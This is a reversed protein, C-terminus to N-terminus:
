CFLSSRSSLAMYGCQKALCHNRTLNVSTIKGQPLTSNWRVKRSSTVQPHKRPLQHGTSVARMQRNRSGVVKTPLYSTPVKSPTRSTDSISVKHKSRLLPSRAPPSRQSLAAAPRPSRPPSPPCCFRVGGGTVGVTGARRSLAPRLAAVKHSFQGLLVVASPRPCLAAEHASGLASKAAPPGPCWITEHAPGPVLWVGM